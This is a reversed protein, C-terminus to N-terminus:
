HDNLFEEEAQGFIPWFQCGFDTVIVEEDAEKNPMYTHTPIPRM